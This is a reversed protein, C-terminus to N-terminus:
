QKEMDNLRKLEMIKEFKLKEQERKMQVHLEFQRDHEVKRLEANKLKEEISRELDLSYLPNVGGLNSRSLM